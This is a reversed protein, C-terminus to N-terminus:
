PASASLAATLIFLLVGGISGFLGTAQVPHDDIWSPNYGSSGYAARIVEIDDSSWKTPETTPVRTEDWNLIYQIPFSYNMISKPDYPGSVSLDAPQILTGAATCNGTCPCAVCSSNTNIYSPDGMNCKGRCLPLNCCTRECSNSYEKCEGQTINKKILYLNPRNCTQTSENWDICWYNPPGSLAASIESINWQINVDPRVHEHILGLMHGFEHLIVSGTGALRPTEYQIFDNLWGLYMSPNATRSSKGIVSWAIMPHYTTDALQIRVDANTVTISSDLHSWQFAPAPLYIGIGSDVTQQIFTHSQVTGNIFWIKLPFDKINWRIQNWLAARSGHSIVAHSRLTTCAYM